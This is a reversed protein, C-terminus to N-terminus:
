MNERKGVLEMACLINLLVCLRGSSEVCEVICRNTGNDYDCVISLKESEESDTQNNAQFFVSFYKPCNHSVVSIKLLLIDQTQKKTKGFM